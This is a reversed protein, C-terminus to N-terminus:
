NKKNSSFIIKNVHKEINQPSPTDFNSLLLTNFYYYIVLFIPSFFENELMTDILLYLFTGRKRM